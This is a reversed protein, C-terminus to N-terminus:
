ARRHPTPNDLLDATERAHYDAWTEAGITSSVVAAPCMTSLNVLWSGPWFTIHAALRTGTSHSAAPRVYGRQVTLTKAAADVSEVWVSEGEILVAEDPVFLDYVESGDTATVAAVQFVTTATDVDTVLVKLKGNVVMKVGIM